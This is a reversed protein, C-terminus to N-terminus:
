SYLCHESVLIITERFISGLSAYEICFKQFQLSKEYSVRPQYKIFVGTQMVDAILTPNQRRNKNIVLKDNSSSFCLSQCM